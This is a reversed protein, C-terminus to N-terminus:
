ATERNFSEYFKDVEALRHPTSAAVQAYLVNFSLLFGLTRMEAATLTLVYEVPLPPPPTIFRTEIKM